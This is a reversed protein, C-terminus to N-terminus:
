SAEEFGYFQILTSVRMGRMEPIEVWILFEVHLKIRVLSYAKTVTGSTVYAITSQESRPQNHYAPYKGRFRRKDTTQTTM